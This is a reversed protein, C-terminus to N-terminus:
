SSTEEGTTPESLPTEEIPHIRRLGPIRDKADDFHDFRSLEDRSVFEEYTEVAARGLDLEELAQGRQWYASANLEGFKGYVVYVREFYATAKKLEGDAALWEGMKLLTAAKTEAGVNGEELLAEMTERAEARRGTEALIEAKKLRVAGISVSSVAHRESKDYYDIAREPDNEALAIDGLGRYVRGKEVARPNWRRIETFLEKATLVNGQVLLAEAVDVTIRPTNRKPDVFKAIELLETRTALEGERRIIQAKAWGSRLALTRDGAVGARTKLTQLRSLLEDRGEEGDEAYVKPLASFIDVMTTMDPDNGHTEITDWYIQRASESDGENLYTWGVWYLAEPMRNSGPYDESFIVFHERMQEFEELQKLANGKKFWAEEFFRGSSPRVKDYSALGEDVFGDAFYADGLLLHAEDCLPDGPYSEIFARLLEVSRPYDAVSFTCVAIRFTAEKKYKPSDWRELYGVMHERAAEYEGSFSHAMGTWYDADEVMDSDPYNRKLQDFQFMAGDNDDQQLYLFGQMFTAKPAFPDDPFRDVLDGYALQAAGYDQAERMAEARLFLVMPLFQGSDAFLETYRDATEIAKAWRRIEMWCQIQALTANEVVPDPPMTRTMNEMILAAERFRELGQYATALRLRLASDFNEIQQFNEVERSVRRLISRLQFITSQTNSQQELVAIRDEIEKVKGSQYELLKEAPWIRQLVSIADYLRKEEIFRSGLQLSLTQFSIVQTMENLRPYEQRILALAEDPQDAEIRAYLELIAARSSAEPADDAIKPRQDQLFDAAEKPFDQQLYLTAFLLLAEHRKFANHSEDAWYQGFGRQAEVLEGETMLCIPRWFRLEDRIQRDIEPDELSTDIWEIAEAFKSQGVKAIAVLPRHIRAAEKAEEAEGYDVIFKELAEEATAFDNEAFAARGRELLQAPGEADLTVGGEQAVAVAWLVFATLFVSASF